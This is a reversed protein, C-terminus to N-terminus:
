RMSIDTSLGTNQYNFAPAIAGNAAVAGITQVPFRAGFNFGQMQVFPPGDSPRVIQVLRVKFQSFSPTSATAAASPSALPGGIWSLELRGGNKVRNILTAALRYNKFPLAARLERVVSDLAAPLRSEAVDQNTGVILYLQTDLNVEEDKNTNAQPTSTTQAQVGFCLATCLILLPLLKKM